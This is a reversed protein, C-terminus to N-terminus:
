VEALAARKLLTVASLMESCCRIVISFSRVSVSIFQLIACSGGFFSGSRVSVIGCWDVEM